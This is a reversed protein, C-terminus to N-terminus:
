MGQTYIETFEASDASQGASYYPYGYPYPSYFCSYFLSLVIRLLIILLLLRGFSFRRSRGTSQRNQENGFGYSGYFPGFPGFGYFGGQAGAGQPAETYGTQRSYQAKGSKINKIQEYAANIDKMKREAEKDNPHIDPHYRRALARYAKTVEEESADPSVGLLQYPDTM